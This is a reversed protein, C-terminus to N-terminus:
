KMKRVNDIFARANGKKDEPEIQIAKELWADSEKRKGTVWLAMAYALMGGYSGNEAAYKVWHLGEDPNMRWQPPDNVMDGFMLRTGYENACDAPPNELQTAYGFLSFADFENKEVGEGLTLMYAMACVAGVNKEKKSRFGSRADLYDLKRWKEVETTQSGGLFEGKRLVVEDGVAPTGETVTIVLTGNKSSEVYGQASEVIEDIGPIRSQIKVFEEPTVAPRDPETMVIISKKGVQQVTGLLIDEAHAISSLAFLLAAALVFVIRNM